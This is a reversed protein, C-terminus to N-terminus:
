REIAKIKEELSKNPVWKFAHFFDQLDVKTVITKLIVDILEDFIKCKTVVGLKLCNVEEVVFGLIQLFLAYPIKPCSFCVDL